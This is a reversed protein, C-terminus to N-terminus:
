PVRRRQYAFWLGSAAMVAIAGAIVALWPLGGSGGDSPEGGTVPLAEAAETPTPTPTATATPTTPTATPIGTPMPTATPGVDISVTSEGFNNDWNVDSFDPGILTQATGRFLHLGTDACTISWTISLPVVTGVELSETVTEFSGGPTKTCDAPTSLTFDVVANVPGSPGNNRVSANVTVDLAVGTLASAPGAVTVGVVEPDANIAQAHATRLGGSAMLGIALVAALLSAIPLLAIPLKRM